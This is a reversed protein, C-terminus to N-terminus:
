AISQLRNLLVHFTTGMKHKEIFTHQCLPIERKSGCCKQPTVTAMLGFLGQSTSLGGFTGMEGFPSTKVGAKDSPHEKSEEPKRSKGL